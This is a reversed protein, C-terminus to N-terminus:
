KCFAAIAKGAFDATGEGGANDINERFRPDATYMQGLGALIEKTCTYYHDTILQQLEGVLKQAAPDAPDGSRLKGLQAFLGMMRDAPAQFDAGQAAKEEFEAYAKTGGWRAKAEAKYADQETKDFAQFKMSIGGTKQIEKALSILRTLRDQQLELLHIQQRIAEMPDFDPSDLIDKIEKLSFQLERFLLINQLRQLAADDYLRYGAQTVDAPPLLGIADYHHLTRVSVGTLRSVETVTYM